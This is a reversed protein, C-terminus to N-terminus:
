LDLSLERHLEQLEEVRVKAKETVSQVPLPLRAIEPEYRYNAYFLSTKTAETASSNYAFQALLLLQVWNTQKYDVYYAEWREGKAPGQERRRTPVAEAMPERTRVNKWV